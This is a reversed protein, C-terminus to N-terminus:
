FLKDTLEASNAFPGATVKVGARHNGFFDTNFIIPTGDPNEYKEEPEFAMAITQTSIVGDTKQPM